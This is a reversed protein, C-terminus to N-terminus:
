ENFFVFGVRFEALQTQHKMKSLYNEIIGM